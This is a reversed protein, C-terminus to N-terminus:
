ETQCTPALTEGWEGWDHATVDKRSTCGSITCKHWHHNGDNTWTTAYNHATSDVPITGTGKYNCENCIHYQSGKTQCTPNSTVVWEGWDHTTKDLIANCGAVTCKYWHHQSDKFWVSSATHANPDIARVRTEVLECVSCIKEEEGTTQCTEDLTTTWEGWHHDLSVAFDCNDFATETITLVCNKVLVSALTTPIYNKQEEVKEAGFIYGFHTNEEGNAIAGVFPITLNTPNQGELAGMAICVTNNSIEFEGTLNGKYGYFINGIYVAGNAHNDWWATNDFCGKKIYTITDPLEIEELYPLINYEQFYEVKDAGSEVVLKVLKPRNKNGQPEFLRDPICANASLTFTIGNGNTGANYFVYNNLGLDGAKSSAYYVSELGTCEYFSSNGLLTVDGLIRLTKIGSCWSFCSDGFSVIGAHLEVNDLSVCSQFCGIGIATLSSSFTVSELSEAYRFAFDGLHKVTNPMEFCQLSTCSDFAYDSITELGDGVAVTELASCKAFTSEGITKVDDCITVTKLATCNYFAKKSITQVLSPITIEKLSTCNEFASEGILTLSEPLNIKELNSCGKFANAYIYELSNPLIVEKLDTNGEFAGAKISRVRLGDYLFPIELKDTKGEIGMVIYFGGSREYQIVANGNVTVVCQATMGNSTTATITATGINLTSVAGNVVKAVAENSSQWIVTKDTANEPFITAVLNLSDGLNVTAQTKNLVIETAYVTTSDGAGCNSCVNNIYNHDTAPIAETELVVHCVSCEKHKSGNETCTANKDIIWDTSSHGGKSSITLSEVPIQGTADVYNRNCATCHWYEITGDETCTADVKAHHILTGEHACDIPEIATNENQKTHCASCEEHALGSETTTAYKDIIWVWTHGNASIENYTSYNCRTCTVYADWGVETCTPAQAIYEIEDHGLADVYTDVYSDGCGACTHTTFGQEMCTPDTVVHAYSHGTASISSTQKEGCSCYREFQGQKTCTAQQTVTWEGFECVHDSNSGQTDCAAFMLCSTILIALLIVVLALKKM